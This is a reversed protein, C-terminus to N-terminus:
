SAEALRVVRARVDIEYRAAAWMELMVRPSGLASRRIVTIDGGNYRIFMWDQGAPMAADDAVLLDYKAM